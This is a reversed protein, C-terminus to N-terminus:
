PRARTTPGHEMQARMRSLIARAEAAFPGALILPARRGDGELHRALTWLQRRSVPCNLSRWRLVRRYDHVSTCGPLAALPGPAGVSTDVTLRFIDAYYSVPPTM